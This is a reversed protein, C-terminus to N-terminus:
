LPCPEMAAVWVGGQCAEFLGGPIAGCGGYDCSVEEPTCPSGLPPRTAPCDPASQQQCWWWASVVSGDIVEIPGVPPSCACRGEPYDCYGGAPSCPQHAPVAAYSAPCAIPPGGGCDLGGPNPLALSWVGATCTAQTDCEPVNSSGWECTLGDDSCPAGSSPPSSPCASTGSSGSSGSSSGTTGSSGTGTGGSSGQGSSSGGAADAGAGADTGGGDSPGALTTGGCAVALASLAVLAYAGGLRTSM